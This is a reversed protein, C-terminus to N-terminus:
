QGPPPGGNPPGGGPPPEGGPPRGDPPGFPPGGGPPPGHMPRGDPGMPGPPGPRGDHRRAENGQPSGRREGQPGGPPQNGQAGPKGPPGGPHQQGMMRMVNNVLGDFKTQQGPKLMARFNRFHAFTASDLKGQNDLIRSELRSVALADAHPNKLNDFFSDRQARMMENVSQTFEMHHERLTDYQKIQEPTLKLQKVLYENAPGAPPLPRGARFHTFWLVGILICNFAILAVVIVVLTKINKM